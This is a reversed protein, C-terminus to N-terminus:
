SVDSFLKSYDAESSPPTGSLLSKDDGTPKGFLGAKLTMSRLRPSHMPLVYGECIYVLTCLVCIRIFALSFSM